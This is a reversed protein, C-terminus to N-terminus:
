MITKNIQKPTPPTALVVARLEPRRVGFQPTGVIGTANPRAKNELAKQIVLKPHAVVLALANRLHQWQKLATKLANQNVNV